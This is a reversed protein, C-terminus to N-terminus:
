LAQYLIRVTDLVIHPLRCFKRLNWWSLNWCLNLVLSHSKRWQCVGWCQYIGNQLSICKYYLLARIDYKWAAFSIPLNDALGPLVRFLYLERWLTNCICHTICVFVMLAHVFALCKRRLTVLGYVTSIDRNYLALVSGQETERKGLKFPYTYVHTCTHPSVRSLVMTVMWVAERRKYLRMTHSKYVNMSTGLLLLKFERATEKKFQSLERDIAQSIRLSAKAEEDLLCTCLAM